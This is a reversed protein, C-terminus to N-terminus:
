EVFCIVLFLCVEIYTVLVAGIAVLVSNIITYYLFSIVLDGALINEQIDLLSLFSNRYQLLLVVGIYSIADFNSKAMFTHKVRSLEEVSIDVICAILATCVGILIFIMWRAFDKRATFSDRTNQERAWLENECM